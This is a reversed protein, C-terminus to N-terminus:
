NIEVLAANSQSKQATRDCGLLLFRIASHIVILRTKLVLNQLLIM